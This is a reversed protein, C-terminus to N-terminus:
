IKRDGTDMKDSTMDIIQQDVSDPLFLNEMNLGKENEMQIINFKGFTLISEDTLKAM